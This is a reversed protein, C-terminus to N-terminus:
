SPFPFSLKKKWTRLNPNCAWRGAGRSKPGKAERRSPQPRIAPRSGRPLEPCASDSPGLPGRDLVLGRRPAQAPNSRSGRTRPSAAPPRPATPNPLSPLRSRAGPSGPGQSRLLEPGRRANRVNGGPRPEAAVHNSQAGRKGYPKSFARMRPGPARASRGPHPARLGTGAVRGLLGRRGRRQM